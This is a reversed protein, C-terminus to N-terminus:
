PGQAVAATNSHGTLWARVADCARRGLVTAYVAKGHEDEGFVLVFRDHVLDPARAQLDDVAALVEDREVLLDSALADITRGEFNCPEGTYQDPEKHLDDDDEHLNDDEGQSQNQPSCDPAPACHPCPTPVERDEVKDAEARHM